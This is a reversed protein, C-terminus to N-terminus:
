EILAKPLGTPLIVMSGFSALSTRKVAQKSYAFVNYKSGQSSFKRLHYGTQYLTLLERTTTVLSLAANCRMAGGLASCNPPTTTTPPTTIEFFQAKFVGAM